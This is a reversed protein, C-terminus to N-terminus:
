RAITQQVPAAQRIGLSRILTNKQMRAADQTVKYGPSNFYDSFFAAPNPNIFGNVFGAEGERYVGLGTAQRYTNQAEAALARGEAREQPNWSGSHQQVFAQLKNMQQDFDALGVLKDREAPKVERTAFGVNPIYHEEVDKAAAADFVKLQQIMPAIVEPSYNGGNYMAHTLALRQTLPATQVSLQSKAMDAAAKAQLTGARAAELDLKHGMLDTLQIKTMLMADKINGYQQTNHSLLSQVRGLNDRQAQVDRDINKNLFELAQNPGGTRGAGMGGLILGIATSLQGSTSLSNMYHSADVPNKQIYDVFESRQKTLEALSEQALKSAVQMPAEPATFAKLENARGQALQTAAQQQEEIGRMGYGLAGQTTGIQPESAGQPQQGQAAQPTSLAPVPQSKADAIINAETQALQGKSPLNDPSVPPIPAQPAPQTAIAEPVQAWLERAKAADHQSLANPNSKYTDMLAAYSKALNDTAGPALLSKNEVQPVEAEAAQQAVKAQPTVPAAQAAQILSEETDPASAIPADVIPDGGEALMAPHDTDPTVDTDRMVRQIHAPYEQQEGGLDMRKRNAKDIDSKEKLIASQNSSDAAVPGGEAMKAMNKHQGPRSAQPPKKQSEELKPNGELVPLSSLQALLPKSLAKKAVKFEHGQDHRLTAYHVDEQVKKFRKLNIPFNSM